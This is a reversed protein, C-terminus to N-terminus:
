RIAESPPPQGTRDSETKDEEARSLEAAVFSPLPPFPLPCHVCCRPNLLFPPSNSHLRARISPTSPVCSQIVSQGASQGALQSVSQSVPRRVCSRRTHLPFSCLRIDRVSCPVDKTLELPICVFAFHAPTIPGGQRSRTTYPCPQELQDNSAATSTSIAAMSSSAAYM